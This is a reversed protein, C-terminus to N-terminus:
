DEVYNKLADFAANKQAEKKSTGEGEGIIVEDLKCLVKFKPHIKDKSIYVCEYIPLKKLKKEIKSQLLSKYDDISSLMENENYYPIFIDLIFKSVFDYGLDLFIAGIFAEFVDELVKEHHEKNNKEGQSYLIYEEFNLKNSLKTLTSGEVLFKRRKSLEGSSFDAHRQLLFKTIVSYLVSDGLFELRDYDAIKIKGQSKLYVENSYSKHTFAQVYYDLNKYPLEMKSLLSKINDRETTSM